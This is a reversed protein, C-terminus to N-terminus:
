MPLRGMMQKIFTDYGDQTKGFICDYEALIEADERITKHGFKNEISLLSRRLREPVNRLVRVWAVLRDELILSVHSEHGYREMDTVVVGDYTMILARALVLADFSTIARPSVRAHIKVGKKFKFPKESCLVRRLLPSRLIRNIRSHAWLHGNTADKQPLPILDILSTCDDLHEWIFELGMDKTLTNEGRTFIGDILDVVDSKTRYTKDKILNFGHVNPDFEQASFVEPLFDSILLYGGKAPLLDEVVVGRGVHLENMAPETEAPLPTDQAHRSHRGRRLHCGETVAV